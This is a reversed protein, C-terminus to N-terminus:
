SYGGYIDLSLEIGRGGLAVLSAPALSLGENSGAMFLGCFLDSNYTSAIQKWIGLDDTLRGLLEAIQADLDGPEQPSAELHWMGFKAIREAGTHKGIILQGKTQATTPACGLLTTIEAPDLSDGSIRLTAVTRELTAM